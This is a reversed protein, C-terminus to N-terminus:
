RIVVIKAAVMAGLKSWARDATLAEAGRAAALALCACDGLSLGAERTAAVLRGTAVALEADFPVVEVSASAILGTVVEYKAGRRAFYAAVEAYNVSSVV